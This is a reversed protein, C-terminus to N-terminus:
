AIGLLVRMFLGSLLTQHQQVVTVRPETTECHTWLELLKLAYVVCFVVDVM